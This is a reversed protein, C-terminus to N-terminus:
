TLSLALFGLYISITIDIFDLLEGLVRLFEYRLPEFAVERLCYNVKFDFLAGCEVLLLCRLEHSMETKHIVRDM